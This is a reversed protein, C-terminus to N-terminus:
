IKKGYCERVTITCLLFFPSIKNEGRSL